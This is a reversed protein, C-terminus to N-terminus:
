STSEWFLSVFATGTADYYQVKVSALESATLAVTSSALIHSDSDSALDTLEDIVLEENVYLRVGDNAELYFTYTETYAPLFFGEWEISVYNSAVDPIIEGDAWSFNVQTDVQTQYAEGSFWKNTYYNGTLGGASLVYGSVSYTGCNSGSSADSPITFTASYSGTALTTVTATSFLYQGQGNFIIVVTQATAIDNGYADNLELTLTEANDIEGPSTITITSSSAHPVNETVVVTSTKTNGADGNVVVDIDYDESADTVKYNTTYTGDGNDFTEFDTITHSTSTITIGLSDGGSDRQNSGSDYLTVIFSEIEGAIAATAGTGSIVTNAPDTTSVSCVVEFPSGWIEEAVSSGQPTLKITMDYTGAVTLTYTVDWEGPTGSAAAAGAM